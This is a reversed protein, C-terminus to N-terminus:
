ISTLMSQFCSRPLNLVRGKRERKRIETIEEENGNSDIIDTERQRTIEIGGQREGQRELRLMRTEEELERVYDALEHDSHRPRALVLSGSERPRIEVHDEHHTRPEIYRVPSMVRGHNHVSVSRPRSITHVRPRETREIVEEYEVDRRSPSHEFIFTDHSSRPTHRAEIQLHETTVRGRPRGGIQLYEAIFSDAFSVVTYTCQNSYLPSM